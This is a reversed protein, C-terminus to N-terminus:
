FHSLINTSVQKTMSVLGTAAGNASTFETTKQQLQMLLVPNSPDDQLQTLLDTMQTHVNAIGQSLSRTMDGLFNSQSAAASFPNIPTTM